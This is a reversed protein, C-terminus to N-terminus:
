IYIRDALALRITALRLLPPDLGEYNFIGMEKLPASYADPNPAHLRDTEADIHAIALESLVVDHASNRKLDEDLVLRSFLARAADYRQTHRFNSEAINITFAALSLDHSSPASASLRAISLPTPPTWVVVKRRFSPLLIFM